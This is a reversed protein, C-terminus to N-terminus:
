CFNLYKRKNHFQYSEKLRKVKECQNRFTRLNRPIKGQREETMKINKNSNKDNFVIKKLFKLIKKNQKKFIIENIVEQCSKM